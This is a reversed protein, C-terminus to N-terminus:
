NLSKGHGSGTTFLKRARREWFWGIGVGVVGAIIASTVLVDFSVQKIVGIVLTVIEFLAVPLMLRWEVWHSAVPSINQAKSKIIGIAETATIQKHEVSNQEQLFFTNRNSIAVVDGNNLFLEARPFGPSIKALTDGCQDRIGKIQSWMIEKKGVLIKGSTILIKKSFM